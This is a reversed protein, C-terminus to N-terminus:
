KQNFLSKFTFSIKNSRKAVDIPITKTTKQPLKTAALKQVKWINHCNKDYVVRFLM